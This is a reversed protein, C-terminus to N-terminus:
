GGLLYNMVGLCYATCVALVEASAARMQEQTDAPAADPACMAAWRKVVLRRSLTEEAPNVAIDRILVFCGDFGAVFHGRPTRVSVSVCAGAASM